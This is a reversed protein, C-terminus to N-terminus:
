VAPNMRGAERGASGHLRDFAHWHNLGDRADALDNPLASPEGRLM